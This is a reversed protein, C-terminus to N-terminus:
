PRGGNEARQSRESNFGHDPALVKVHAAAENLETIVLMCKGLLNDWSCPEFGNSAIVAAAERALDNPSVEAM